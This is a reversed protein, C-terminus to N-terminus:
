LDWTPSASLWIDPNSHTKEKSCFKNPLLFFYLSNDIMVGMRTKASSWVVGRPTQPQTSEPAVRLCPSLYLHHIFSSSGPVLSLLWSLHSKLHLGPESQAPAEPVYSSLTCVGWCEGRFAPVRSDARGRECSCCECCGLAPLWGTDM